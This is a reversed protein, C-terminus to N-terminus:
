GQSRLERRSSIGLKGYVNRLHYEVAKESVYMEAAIEKNTMGKRVLAVVDQERETLALPSHKTATRIGCSALDDAVAQRYPEAGVGAFVEHAARLHDVADRRNGRAHLLRGYHHRLLGRDVLPDDPRITEIALQFQAAAEDPDGNAAALRARQGAVQGGIDMRTDDIHRQLRDLETAAERLEGSDILGEVLIPWWAVVAMQSVVVRKDTMLPRLADVVGAADARARCIASRVLRAVLDPWAADSAASAADNAIALCAEAEEWSGRAAAVTGIVSEARGRIWSLRDDSVIAQAARAHVLAEDWDGVVYLARALYVHAAPLHQQSFGARSLRIAARLDVIGSRTQAAYLRLLGRVALLEGDAGAVDGPREPLRKELVALGAPAGNLSFEASALSGLASRTIQDDGGGLSLAAEASQAQRMPEGRTIYISSLRIHADARVSPDADEEAAASSLLRQASEADGTEYAYSGLVLDRLPGPDCTEIVPVVEAFRELQGDALLLRVGRLFRSDAVQHQTTLPAAWMLYKAALGNAGRHIEDTAGNELEDALADDASDAAAVRHPWGAVRGLNDAAARHLAQRRTPSLDDYVALRYLPHVFDIPTNHEGPLWQVFGTKLLSELAAVPETVAAVRAVVALPTRQGLVALASALQHAEEPLEALAAITASSLSRPAPLEHTSSTLQEPTLEHLLTKIYLPHGGTHRHLRAAQAGTLEIHLRHAWEGVQQEAMPGLQITCCIIEDNVIRDWGDADRGGPRSTLLLAVPEADLRRAMTVLAKRSTADAWHMDEVVVLVPRHDQREGTLRLLELGAAFSGASTVAGLRSVVGFPQERALEDAEASMVIFDSPLAALVRRVLATKGFGADGEIWVVGAHGAAAASLRQSITTVEADRGM